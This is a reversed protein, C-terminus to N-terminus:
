THLNGPGLGEQAVHHRSSLTWTGRVTHAMSLQNLQTRTKAVSHVTAQWAGRDTPNELLIHCHTAKGEELSRGLGPILGTDGMDGANAPPEKGNRWWPLGQCTCGIVYASDSFVLDGLTQQYQRM